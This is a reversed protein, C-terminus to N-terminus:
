SNRHNLWLMRAALATGLLSVIACVFAICGIKINNSEAMRSETPNSPNYALELEQGVSIPHRDHSPSGMSEAAKYLKGDVVFSYILISDQERDSTQQIERSLVKGTTTKWGSESVLKVSWLLSGSTAALGFVVIVSLTRQGPVINNM